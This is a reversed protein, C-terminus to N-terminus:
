IEPFKSASVVNVLAMALAFRVVMPHYVLIMRNKAIVLMALGVPNVFVNDVNARAMTPDPAFSSSIGNVLSIIVNAINELFSKTPLVNKVNAFAACVHVADAVNWPLPTIQVAASIVKKALM